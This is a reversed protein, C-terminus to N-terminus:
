TAPSGLPRLQVRLHSVRERDCHAIATRLEEELAARLAAKKPSLILPPRRAKFGRVRRTDSDMAVPRFHGM